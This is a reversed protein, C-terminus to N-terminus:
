VYLTSHVWKPMPEKKYYYLAISKRASDEPCNLPEPHGHFSTSTTNFIVCRNFIPEVRKVTKGDGDVLQLEGGWEPTWDRNLYLLLNIKRVAQLKSHWNFDAHIGLFGGRPIHHLGGGMLYPDPILGEIGTLEELWKIRANSNLDAVVSQAHDGLKSFDSVSRKISTSRDACHWGQDPWEGLVRELADPDYFDDIVTHPFPTAESYTTL